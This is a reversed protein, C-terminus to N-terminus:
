PVLVSDDSFSPSKPSCPSSAPSTSQGPSDPVISTGLYELIRRAENLASIKARQQALWGQAQASFVATATRGDAAPLGQMTIKMENAETLGPLIREVTAGVIHALLKHLDALWSAHTNEDAALEELLPEILTHSLAALADRLCSITATSATDWSTHPWACVAAPLHRWDAPELLHMRRELWSCLEKSEVPAAQGCPADFFKALLAEAKTM